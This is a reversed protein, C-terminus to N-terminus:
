DEAVLKDIDMFFVRRSSRLPHKIGMGGTDCLGLGHSSQQATTLM